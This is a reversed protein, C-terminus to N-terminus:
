TSGLTVMDVRTVKSANQWYHCCYMISTDQLSFSALLSTPFFAPCGLNTLSCLFLLSCQDLYTFSHECCVFQVSTCRTSGTVRRAIPWARWRWSTSQSCPQLARVATWNLEHVRSLLDVSRLSSYCTSPNAPSWFFCRCVRLPGALTKFWCPFRARLLLLPM